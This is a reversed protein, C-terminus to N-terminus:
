SPHLHGFNVMHPLTSFMAALTGPGSICEVQCFGAVKSLPLFVEEIRAGIVRKLGFNCIPMSECVEPIV